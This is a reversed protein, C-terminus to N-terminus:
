EKIFTSLHTRYIVPVFNKFNQITTEDLDKLADGRPVYFRKWPDDIIFINGQRDCAVSEPAFVYQRNKYGPILPPLSLVGMLRLSFAPDLKVKFLKRQNRDLILLLSDDAMALGCVTHIGLSKTSIVADLTFSKKSIFYILTSDAFDTGTQFGELAAIIHSSSATMGEFGINNDVYRLFTDVPSVPVKRVGIITDCFVDNKAFYVEYIGVDHRVSPLNGEISLFVRRASRDYFIEEFDQKPFLSLLAAAEGTLVLPRLTFVTDDQIFLRHIKGIDDAILFEDVGASDRLFTIGSTQDPAYMSSKLWRPYSPSYPNQPYHLPAIFALVAVFVGFRLLIFNKSIQM